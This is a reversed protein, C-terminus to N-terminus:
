CVYLDFYATFTSSDVLQMTGVLWGYSRHSIPLRSIPFCVPLFASAPICFEPVQHWLFATGRLTLVLLSVGGLSCAQAPEIIAEYIQRRFNTTQHSSDVKLM